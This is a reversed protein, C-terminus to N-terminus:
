VHARGIEGDANQHTVLYQVGGAILGSLREPSGALTIVQTSDSGATSAERLVIALASVATATSLASTSLEGIWHGAPVREDLLDARATAYAAMLRDPDIM